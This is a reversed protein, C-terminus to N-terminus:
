ECITVLGDHRPKAPTEKAIYGLAVTATVLHEDPVGYEHLLARVQADNCCDRVQNIWCSGVGLSQAALLMNQVCAGADLFANHNDRPASTIIITPAGYFSYSEGRNGAKGVAKYLQEAKVANHVITFHWDQKGMGSPAWTGAEIIKDIVDMPLQAPKFARTSRREKIVKIIESM